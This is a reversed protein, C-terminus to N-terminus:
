NLGRQKSIEYLCVTTANAVNLSDIGKRMNIKVLHNAKDQWYKSIGFTENGIVLVTPKKFDCESIM